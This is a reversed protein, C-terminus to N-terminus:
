YLEVFDLSMGCKDKTIDDRYRYWRFESYYLEHCEMENRFHGPYDQDQLWCYDVEYTKGGFEFQIAKVIVTRFVNGYKTHKDRYHDLMFSGVVTINNDALYKLISHTRDIKIIM